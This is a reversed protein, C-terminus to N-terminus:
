RLRVYIIITKVPEITPAITTPLSLDVMQNISGDKKFLEWLKKLSVEGLYNPVDDIFSGFTFLLKRVNVVWGVLRSM